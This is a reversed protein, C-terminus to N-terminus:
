AAHGGNPHYDIARGAASREAAAAFAQEAQWVAVAEAHAEEFTVRRPSDDPFSGDPLSIDDLNM